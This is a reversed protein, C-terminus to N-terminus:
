HYGVQYGAFVTGFRLGAINHRPYGLFPPLKPTGAQRYQRISAAGANRVGRINEDPAGALV